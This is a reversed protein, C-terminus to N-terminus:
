EWRVERLPVSRGITCDTRHRIIRVEHGADSLLIRDRVKAVKHAAVLVESLELLTDITPRDPLGLPRYTEIEDLGFKMLGKTYFWVHGRGLHEEQFVRVHDRLTFGDLRMDSWDSPNLFVDGIVDYATGETLLTLGRAIRATHLALDRRDGRGQPSQRIEVVHAHSWNLRDRWGNVVDDPLAMQVTARWTTHAAEYRHHGMSGMLHITLPGGYAENFWAALYGPPPPDAHTFGVVFAPPTRPKSSATKKKIKKM